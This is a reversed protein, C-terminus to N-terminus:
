WVFCRTSNLEEETFLRVPRNAIEGPGARQVGAGGGLHNLTGGQSSTRWCCSNRPRSPSPPQRLRLKVTAPETGFLLTSRMATDSDDANLGPQVRSMSAVELPEAVYISVPEALM